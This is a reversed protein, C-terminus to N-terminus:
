NRPVRPFLQSIDSTGIEEEAEEASFTLKVTYANADKRRVRIALRRSQFSGPVTEFALELLSLTAQNFAYWVDPCEMGFDDRAWHDGDFIDFYCRM